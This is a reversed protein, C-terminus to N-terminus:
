RRLQSLWVSKKVLFYIEVHKQHSSLFRQVIESVHSKIMEREIHKKLMPIELFIVSLLMEKKFFFCNFALM